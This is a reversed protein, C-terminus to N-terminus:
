KSLGCDNQSMVHVVGNYEDESVKFFSYFQMKKAKIDFATKFHKNFEQSENLIMEVKKLASELFQPSHSMSLTFSEPMNYLLFDVFFQRKLYEKGKPSLTNVSKHKFFEPNLKTSEGDQEFRNKAQSLIEDMYNEYRSESDNDRNDGNEVEGFGSGSARVVQAQGRQSTSGIKFNKLNEIM